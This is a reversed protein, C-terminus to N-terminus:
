SQTGDKFNVMRYLGGKNIVSGNGVFFFVDFNLRQAAEMRFYTEDCDGNNFGMRLIFVGRSTEVVEYSILRQVDFM